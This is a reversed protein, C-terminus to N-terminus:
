QRAPGASLGLLWRKDKEVMVGLSVNGLPELAQSAEALHALGFLLLPEPAVSRVPLNVLTRTREEEHGVVLVEQTMLSQRVVVASHQDEDARWSLERASQAAKQRPLTGLALQQVPADETQRSPTAHLQQTIAAM